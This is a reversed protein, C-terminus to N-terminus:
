PSRRKLAQVVSGAPAAAIPFPDPAAAGDGPLGDALVTHMPRKPFRALLRLGRISEIQARRRVTADGLEATVALGLGLGLGAVIGALLFLYPSPANSVPEGPPDVIKVRDDAEFLGLDGTVRAMEHRKALTELIARENRLEAELGALVHAVKTQDSVLPALQRIGKELRAVEVGLSIQSARAQRYAESQALATETAERGRAPRAALRRREERLAALRQRTEKLDPHDATYTASLQTAETSLRAIEGDIRLLLPDAAGITDAMDIIRADIGQLEVRREDLLQRMRALRESAEAHAEPLNTANEAKFDALRREAAAVIQRRGEIQQELFRVSSAISAREPGVLKDVFRRAIGDLLEALGDPSGGRLRLEVLDAGILRMTLGNSIAMVVADREAKPMGPAIKGLESAVAAIGSHNRVLSVLVPMREGLRTGVVLDGLYPSQKAPEQVLLTMQVEYTKPAYRGVAYGLPPLLLLPVGILFRRRWCGALLRQIFDTPTGTM